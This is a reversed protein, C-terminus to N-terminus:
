VDQKRECIMGLIEVLEDFYIHQMEGNNTCLGFSDINVFLLTAKILDCYAKAISRVEGMYDM